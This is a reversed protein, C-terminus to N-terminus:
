SRRNSWHYALADRLVNDFVPDSTSNTFDALVLVDQDTLPKARSYRMAVFVAGVALVLALATIRSYRRGHRPANEENRITVSAM